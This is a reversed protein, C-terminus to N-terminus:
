DVAETVVTIAEAARRAEQSAEEADRGTAIVFGFRHDSNEMRHVTDGVGIGCQVEVVGAMKRAASLGEVARVRGPPAELFRIAAGQARTPTVDPREAMAMAIVARNASIGTALPVLHSTICGGGLRAGFEVLKPGKATAYVEAHIACNDLDLAGVIREVCRALAGQTEEPLQSPIAHAIEVCHPFAGTTKDTIAFIHTSGGCAVGEVSVENGRLLEEALLTGTRAFGLAYRYAAELEGPGEVVVVGKSGSADLPKLVLPWGCVEAARELDAASAVEYFSPCYEPLEQRLRERVRLKNRMLRAKEPGLGPLGLAACVESCPILGPDSAVTAVGRVGYRRAVEVARGAEMPNVTEAFDAQALGPASPNGDMAVVKLGMEQAERIAPVQFQGAPLILLDAKGRGV